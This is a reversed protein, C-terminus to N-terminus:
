KSEKPTPCLNPLTHLCKCKLYFPKSMYSETAGTDLLIQCGTGDLLKGSTFGQRTIHFKEEARINKDRTVKTQGLYTTSLDSNEGFRNTYVMKTHVDEYPDLYNTKLTENNVGFDIDLTHGERKLKCYLEKHLQYDLTNLDYEHTTKEDHQKYKIEDTFISWNEMQLTKDEDKYVKNLIVRKCPNNDKRNVDQELENKMTNVNIVEGEEVKKYVYNAQKASLCMAERNKIYSVKGGTKSEIPLFSTTGDKGKM